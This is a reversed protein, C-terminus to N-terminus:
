PWDKMFELFFRYDNTASESENFMESDEFSEMRGVWSSKTWIWHVLRLSIAEKRLTLNKLTLPKIERWKLIVTLVNFQLFLELHIASTETVILQKRLLRSSTALSRVYVVVCTFCVTVISLLLLWVCLAIYQM